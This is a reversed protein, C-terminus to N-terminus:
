STFQEAWWKAADEANKPWHQLYDPVEATNILDSMPIYPKLDIIPTDDFADMWMFSITGTKVDISKIKLASIAVPNPRYESRTAFIGMTPADKGYFPPLEEANVKTQSRADPNDQQNAWWIVFVDSFKDLEKLASRYEERVQIQYKHSREDVSTYGIPEIKIKKAMIKVKKTSLSNM